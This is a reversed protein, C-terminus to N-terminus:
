RDPKRDREEYWDDLAEIEEEATREPMVQPRRQEVFPIALRAAQHAPDSSPRREYHVLREMDHLIDLFSDLLEPCEMVCEILMGKEYYGSEFSRGPHFIHMALDFAQLNEAAKDTLEHRVIPAALSADEEQPARAAIEAITAETRELLGRFRQLLQGGSRDADLPTQAIKGGYIRDFSPDNRHMIGLAQRMASLALRCRLYQDHENMCRVM